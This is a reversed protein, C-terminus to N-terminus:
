WPAADYVAITEAVMREIGFRERVRRLAEDALRRAEDPDDLLRAIGDALSVPDGPDCRMGTEGPVVTERVGGVPTAVVPVGAAQAELVALCLGEFYSPLAFVSFSALLEPVDTRAGTFLVSDAIGLRHAQHELEDRLEGDGVLVFRADPHRRLVLPVADLLIRQGKQPALRAVSGVLRGTCSLAPTAAAFHDLDIGLPVVHSRLRRGDTRRDSESTYIVEPRTAWALRWLLRGVLNDQRPLEPTHHTVLVRPVGSLRAALMGMTWSDTVHVLEPRLQRLRRRLHRVGTLASGSELGKPYTEVSVTGGELAGLPALEQVDPHLLVVERGREGLAAVLEAVYSEVAGFVTASQLFVIV